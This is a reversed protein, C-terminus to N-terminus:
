ALKRFEEVPAPFGRMSKKFMAVISLLLPVEFGHLGRSIHYVMELLIIEKVTLTFDKEFSKKRLSSRPNM